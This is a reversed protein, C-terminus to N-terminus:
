PGYYSITSYNDVYGINNFNPVLSILINDTLPISYGWTFPASNTWGGTINTVATPTTGPHVYYTSGNLSMAATFDTGRRRLRLYYPGEPPNQPGAGFGADKISMRPLADPKYSTGPAGPWMTRGGDSMKTEMDIDNVSLNPGHAVQLGMHSAYLFTMILTFDGTFAHNVFEQFNVYRINNYASLVMTSGCGPYTLGTIDPINFNTWTPGQKKWTTAPHPASVAVPTSLVAKIVGSGTGSRVIVFLTNAGANEYVDCTITLVGTSANYETVSCNIATTGIVPASPGIHATFDSAINGNSASVGSLSVTIPSSTAATIIGTVTSIASPPAYSGEATVSFVKNPIERAGEGLFTTGSFISMIPMIGDRGLFASGSKAVMVVPATVFDDNSAELIFAGGSERSEYFMRDPFRIAGIEGAVDLIFKLEKTESNFSVKVARNLHSNGNMVTVGNYGAETDISDYPKYWPITSICFANNLTSTILTGNNKVKNVAQQLYNNSSLGHTDNTAETTTRYLGLKWFHINM